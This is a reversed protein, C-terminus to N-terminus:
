FAVQFVLPIGLQVINAKKTITEAAENKNTNGILWFSLGTGFTVSGLSYEATLAIRLEDTTATNTVSSVTNETKYIGLLNALQLTLALPESFQYKAFLSTHLALWSQSEGKYIPVPSGNNIDKGLGYKIKDKEDAQAFDGTAGAFSINNNLAVNLDPIGSYNLHLSVGNYIPASISGPKSKKPDVIGDPYYAWKEYVDFNATYGLSIGLSNDPLRTGAYLGLVNEWRGIVTNPNTPDEPRSLTNEDNGWIGYFLDVNVWDAINQGSFMFTGNIGSSSAFPTNVNTKLADPATGLAFRYDKIPSIGLAFTLAGFAGMVASDHWEFGPRYVGFRNVDYLLYEDSMYYNFNDYVSVFGGYGINGIYGDVKYNDDEGIHGKVWWDGDTIFNKMLFQNLTMTSYLDGDNAVEMYIDHNPGTHSFSLWVEAGPAWTLNTNLVNFSGAIHEGFTFTDDGNIISGSATTYYLLDAKARTGFGLKFGYKEEKKNENEEQAFVSGAFLAFVVLFVILKKM